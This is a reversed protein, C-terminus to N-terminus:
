TQHEIITIVKVLIKHQADVKHPQFMFRDYAFFLM